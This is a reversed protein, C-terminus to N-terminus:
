HFIVMNRSASSGNKTSRPVAAQMLLTVRSLPAV